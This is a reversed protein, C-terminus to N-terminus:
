HQFNSIVDKASWLPASLGGKVRIQVCDNLYLFQILSKIMGGFGISDLQLYMLERYVSDYAKAIDCFAVLIYYDKKKARTVAALLM